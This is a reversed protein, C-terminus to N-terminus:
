KLTFIIVKKNFSGFILAELGLFKPMFLIKAVKAANFQAYTTIPLRALSLIQHRSANPNSDRYACLNIKSPSNELEGEKKNEYSISINHIINLAYNEDITRYNGIEKDWLIGSPFLLNQIKQSLELESDRWLCGLKCCTAVVEDATSTLNSLNRKVKAMEAEIKSLKNQIVEITTTYVDDDIDGMGRSVKCKKLKGIYESKQKKLLTEMNRAEDDNSIIMKSIIDRLLPKLSETVNFFRLLCEYREHMKKASVNTKCGSQNCKYYDINKKKVTYATFPTKDKSCLIHRKLPFRPTEKKHKYVGTRGSLIDQVRLFDEYSVLKPQNGDVLRGQLMKHKIKGAYFPNTLIHHLKQKRMTLGYASLKKLIECNAYGQM